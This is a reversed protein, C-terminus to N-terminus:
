DDGEIVKIGRVYRYGFRAKFRRLAERKSYSMYTMKNGVNDRVCIMGSRTYSIRITIMIM